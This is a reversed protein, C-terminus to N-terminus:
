ALKYNNFKSINGHSLLIWRENYAGYKQFIGNENDIKEFM